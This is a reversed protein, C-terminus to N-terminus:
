MKLVKIGYYICAIFFSIWYLYDVYFIFYGIHYPSYYEFAGALMAIGAGYLLHHRIRFMGKQSIDRYGMSVMVFGAISFAVTSAMWLSANWAQIPTVFVGFTLVYGGAMTLWYARATAIYRTNM